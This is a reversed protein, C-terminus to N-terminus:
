KTELINQILNIISLKLEDNQIQRFKLVLQLELNNLLVSTQVDSDMCSQSDYLCLNGFFYHPTCNLIKCLKLLIQMSINNIGAEYKQIQQFTCGIKEALDKQTMNLFKRRDKLRKGIKKNTSDQLSYKPNNNNENM